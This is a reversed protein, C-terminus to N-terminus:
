VWTFRVLCCGGPLRLLSDLFLDPVLILLTFLDGLDEQAEQILAVLDGLLQRVRPSQEPDRTANIAMVTIGTSIQDLTLLTEELLENAIRDTTLTSM